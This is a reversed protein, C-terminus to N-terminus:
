TAPIEEGEKDLLTLGCGRLLDGVTALKAFPVLMHNWSEPAFAVEGGIVAHTPHLQVDVYNTRRRITDLAKVDAQPLVECFVIPRHTKLINHAGKLVEAELSEVDIKMLTVRGPHREQTFFDVTVVTVDIVESYEDKFHASLSSSTEVLGHDQLPVYLPLTGNASAVALSEVKVRSGCHNTRITSELHERVPPFPEFAFVQNWKNVQAAIVSYLGTNAGIDYVVGPFAHACAAFVTPMPPEFAAWGSRLATAIQDRGIRGPLKVVVKRGGTAEPPIEAVVLDTSLQRLKAAATAAGAVGAVKALTRASRPATALVDRVTSKLDRQAAVVDMMAHPRGM